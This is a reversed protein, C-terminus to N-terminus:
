AGGNLTVGGDIILTQGTMWGADGSLLFAVAGSIDEPVGLRKLPYPQAAEEERGAYLAEAFQTKVIGPAVANVRITPGLEFALEETLHIVAAKSSGYMAIGPAPRVGAVSAVNVISGGHQGMWAAHAAQVWGLTGIVNVEFIKRAAAPDLDLLSGYAPNIGANNVLLHLGGFTEIAAAVAAKQHDPDDARGTVAIAREPGGLLDVAAELADPKRATVCVRAGEAILRRAIDLGIGRSAGTVIAVQGALRQTM